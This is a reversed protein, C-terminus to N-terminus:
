HRPMRTHRGVALVVDRGAARLEAAIQVGTAGAVVVLVGGPPLDDPASHEASHLRHIRAPLAAAWPPLRPRDCAGTAIVVCRVGIPGAGTQLHYRGNQRTLRRVATRELIPAAGAYGELLWVLAAPTMFGDPDPGAYDFGPLRTMWNPTLLRLGAWRLGRWREAVGGREIVLHDIGRDRLCRSMALGAQGAGLIAVCTRKM